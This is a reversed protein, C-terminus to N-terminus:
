VLHSPSCIVQRMWGDETKIALYVILPPESEAQVERLPVPPFRRSLDLLFRGVPLESSPPKRHPLRPPADSHESEERPRPHWNFCPLFENHLDRNRHELGQTRGACILSATAILMMATLMRGIKLAELWSTNCGQRCLATQDPFHSMAMQISFVM